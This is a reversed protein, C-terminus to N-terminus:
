KLANASSLLSIILPPCTQPPLKRSFSKYAHAFDIHFLIIIMPKDNESISFNIVPYRISAMLWRFRTYTRWNQRRHSFLPTFYDSFYNTIPLNDCLHLACYFHGAMSCRKDASEPTFAHFTRPTLIISHRDSYAAPSFKFMQAANCFRKLHAIDAYTGDMNRFNELLM